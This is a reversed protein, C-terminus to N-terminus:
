WIGPILRKWGKKKKSEEPFKEIYWHFQSDAVVSLNSAVWLLMCLLSSSTPDLMLFSIYIVIESSYHPCVVYDFGFGRPFSYSHFSDGGLQNTVNICQCRNKNSDANMNGRKRKDCDNLVIDISDLDNERRLKAVARCIECKSEKLKFLIRHCKFQSINGVAFLFLSLVRTVSLLVSGEASDRRRKMLSSLICSPVLVYHLIGVLYGAIDMTSSGYKTMLLCEYLRRICHVEFMVMGQICVNGLADTVYFNYDSILVVRLAILLYFGGVVSGVLYMHRFYSKLISFSWKSGRVERTGSGHHSVEQSPIRKGHCALDGLLPIFPTTLAIASLFIFITSFEVSFNGRVDLFEIITDIIGNATIAYIM